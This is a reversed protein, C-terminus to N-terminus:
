FFMGYFSDNTRKESMDQNSWSSHCQCIVYPSLLLRVSVSIIYTRSFRPRSNCFRLYNFYFLFKFGIRVCQLPIITYWLSYSHTNKHRAWLSFVSVCNLFVVPRLVFLGEVRFSIGISNDELPDCTANINCNEFKLAVTFDIVSGIYKWCIELYFM